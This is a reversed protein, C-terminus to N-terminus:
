CGNGVASNSDDCDEGNSVYGDPSSCSDLTLPNAPDGYGDGDFDPYYIVGTCLSPCGDETAPQANCAWGDAGNCQWAGTCIGFSNEAKCQEGPELAGEDIQGDGDDDVGNCLEPLQEVVCQFDSTCAQGSGCSGCSGGCGDSGCVKGNCSPTCLVPECADGIGNFPDLDLQDTNPTGPCNDCFDGVGDADGDAQLPNSAQACNDCADGVGDQDADSQNGNATSDCNDVSDPVGDGDTDLPPPQVSDCPLAQGPSLKFFNEKISACARASARPSSGCKMAVCYANCLGLARGEFAGCASDKKASGHLPIFGMTFVAVMLLARSYSM